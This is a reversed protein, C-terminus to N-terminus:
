NVNVRIPRKHKQFLYFLFLVTIFGIIDALLDTFSATRNVLPQTLEDITGLTLIAIFLLSASLLSCPTKLFLIFLFTIAGYAVVHQLKDLGSAQPQNPLVEPPLHTIFVVIATFVVAVILRKTYFNRKALKVEECNTWFHIWSVNPPM